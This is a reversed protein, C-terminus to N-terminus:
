DKTCAGKGATRTVLTIKDGDRVTRNGCNEVPGGNISADVNSGCGLFQTLAADRIVDSLTAYNAADRSVQNNVGFEVTIM